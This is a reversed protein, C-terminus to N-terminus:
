VLEIHEVKALPYYYKKLLEACSVSRHRGKACNIGIVKPNFAEIHSLVQLIFSNFNKGNIIMNQIAPSRGDRKNIKEGHNYRKIVRADFNKDLKSPCRKRIKDGWTYITLERKYDGEITPLKDEDIKIDTKPDVNTINEIPTSKPKNKSQSKRIWPIIHEILETKNNGYLDVCSLVKSKLEDASVLNTMIDFPNFRIKINKDITEYLDNTIKALDLKTLLSEMIFIHM